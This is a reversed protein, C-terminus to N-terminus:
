QQPSKPRFGNGVTMFSRPLVIGNKKLTALMAHEVELRRANHDKALNEADAVRALALTREFETM